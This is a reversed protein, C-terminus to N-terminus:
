SIEEMLLKPVRGAKGMMAEVFKKKLPSVIDFASMGLQTCISAFTSQNLFLTSLRHSVNVSVAKQQYVRRTMSSLATATVKKNESLLEAICEIMVAAEHLALNFGQAAIPHLTHAANGLLFVAGKQNTKARVMRLPFHHRQSVCNLRGLRYGFVSQLRNAFEDDNLKMLENILDNDASWITACQNEKLPLMAIAGNATFREYAVGQHSRQLNTKTVIASQQYDFTEVEIGAQERVTSSAGDAGILLSSTIQKEGEDTEITLVAVGDQQKLSKLMAPQFRTLNSIEGLLTNLALEIHQAPIVHGLSALAADGANLRVAGFHGKRSVHVQRIPSAHQMLDPWLGLNKLFQCSTDNLAFLRPDNNAPMRADVLAVRLPMKRLSAAFGAGVLGGGVIVLDYNIM